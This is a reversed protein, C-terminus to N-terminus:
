SRRCLLHIYRGLRWFPEHQSYELEMDVVDDEDLNGGSPTGVYDRFMRIGSCREVVLGEEELWGSVETVSLPHTPTLGGTEGRVVGSRVRKFNGRVLNRFIQADRNYFALSLYGNPQLMSALIRVAARPDALWELVAHCLVLDWHSHGALEQFAGHCWDVQAEVGLAIARQRAEAVMQASLDNITVRHGETALALALQALGAGTDLVNLPTLERRQELCWNLDRRLVALRVRGKLGGYIRREFRSALDDFNRDGDM